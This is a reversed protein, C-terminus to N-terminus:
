NKKTTKKKKKKKIRMKKKGKTKFSSFLKAKASSPPRAGLTPKSATEENLYGASGMMTFSGSTLLAGSFMNSGKSVKSATQEQLQIGSPHMTTFSGSTM